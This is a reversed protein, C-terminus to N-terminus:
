PPEPLKSGCDYDDIGGKSVGPRSGASLQLRKRVRENEFSAEGTQEPKVAQQLQKKCFRVDLYEGNRRLVLDFM